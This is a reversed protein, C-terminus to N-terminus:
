LTNKDEHNLRVNFKTTLFAGLQQPNLDKQTFFDIDVSNRHGLQLALATRGV